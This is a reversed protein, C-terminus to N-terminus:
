PADIEDRRGAAAVGLLERLGPRAAPATWACGPRSRPSKWHIADCVRGHPDRHLHHRQPPRQRRARGHRRHRWREAARGGVTEAPRSRMVAWPATAATTTGSTSPRFRQGRRREEFGHALLEVAVAQDGGLHVHYRRLVASHSKPDRDPGAPSCGGPELIEHFGAQGDVQVHGPRRPPCPSGKPAWTWTASRIAWTKRVPPTPTSSQAAVEGAGSRRGAAAPGSRKQGAADPLVVPGPGSSCCRSVV